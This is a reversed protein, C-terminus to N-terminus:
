GAPAPARLKRWIADIAVASLIHIPVEAGARYRIMGFTTAASVVVIVFEALLPYLLTRRRRLLVAGVVTLPMLVWYMVTWAYGAWSRTLSWESGLRVEQFPRYISFTRGERALLVVPFRGLHDKTYDIADSRLEGDVVSRDSEGLSVSRVYVCSTSDYNGLLDGSFAADCAGAAMTSGLGTSFIVPEEFRTSNYIIWPAFLLGAVVACAALWGARKRWPITRTGIVIPLVLLAFLAVQEARALTLVACVASLLVARALSPADRYRYALL